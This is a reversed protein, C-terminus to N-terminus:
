EPMMEGASKLIAQDRYSHWKKDLIGYSTLAQAPTLNDLSMHPRRNNYYEIRRPLVSYVDDISGFRTDALLENKVTSNVREAQPNDKPNGDRTMSVKINNGKLINVYDASAYQVGRDSHHILGKIKLRLRETTELAMILAASTYVTELTRGIYYGMIYRSYADMVISLYCFRVSGDANYLRIYTIDAVWIQCARDPIIDHILDPFTPLGHLSCTTRIRNRKRRLNLGHSAMVCEFVARSVHSHERNFIIWLKRCGIRPDLGRESLAFEVIRAELEVSIAFPQKHSKYYAQKSVGLLRCLSSVTYLHPARDHLNSM